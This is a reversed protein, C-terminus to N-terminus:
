LEYQFEQTIQLHKSEHSLIEACQMTCIVNSSDKMEVELTGTFNSSLPQLLDIQVGAVYTGEIPHDVSLCGLDGKNTIVSTDGTIVEGSPTQVYPTAQFSDSSGLSLDYHFTM